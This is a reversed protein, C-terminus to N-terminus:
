YDLQKGVESAVHVRFCAGPTWPAKPLTFLIALYPDGFLLIMGCFEGCENVLAYQPKRDLSIGLSFWGERSTAVAETIPQESLDFTHLVPRNNEYGHVQVQM